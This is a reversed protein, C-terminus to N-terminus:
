LDHPLWVFSLSLPKQLSLKKESEQFQSLATKKVSTLTALSKFFKNKIRALM